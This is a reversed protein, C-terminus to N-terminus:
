SWRNPKQNAEAEQESTTALRFVRFYYGQPRDANYADVKAKAAAIHVVDSHCEAVLGEHAVKYVAWVPNHRLTDQARYSILLRGEPDKM